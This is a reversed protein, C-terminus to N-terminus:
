SYLEGVTYKRTKHFSPRIWSVKGLRSNYVEGYDIWSDKSSTPVLSEHVAEGAASQPFRAFTAAGLTLVCFSVWCREGKWRAKNTYDSCKDNIPCIGMTHRSLLRINVANLVASDLWLTKLHIGLGNDFSCVRRSKFHKWLDYCKSFCVKAVLAIDLTSIIVKIM